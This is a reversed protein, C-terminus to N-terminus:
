GGVVFWDSNNDQRIEEEFWNAAKARAQKSNQADEKNFTILLRNHM